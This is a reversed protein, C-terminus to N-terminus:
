AFPSYSNSSLNGFNYLFHLSLRSLSKDWMQSCENLWISLVCKYRTNGGRAQICLRCRRSMRRILRHITGLDIDQWVEALANTLEQLTRPPNPLWRIRQDMIDWLHEIPNLDPSSAPWNITDIDEDELYWQCVRAVHPRANDYVLLFGPGVAGAHTRVIPRLIEDRYRADTLNGQNLVYLGYTGGPFYMGLGICFRWPVQWAPHHQMGSLTGRHKELGKHTQRIWKLHVLKWRHFACSALPPSALEPTRQCVGGPSCSSLTHPDLWCISTSVKFWHQPTPKQCKNLFRYELAGSLTVKYSVPLAIDLDGVLCFWIGTRKPGRKSVHNLKLGLM